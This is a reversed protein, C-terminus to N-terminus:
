RENQLIKNLDLYTRQLLLPFVLDKLHHCIIQYTASLWFFEISTIESCGDRLSQLIFPIM